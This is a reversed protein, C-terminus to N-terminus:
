NFFGRGVYCSSVNGVSVGGGWVIFLTGIVARAPHWRPTLIHCLSCQGDHVYSRAADGADPRGSEEARQLLSRCKEAFFVM